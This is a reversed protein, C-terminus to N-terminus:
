RSTELAKRILDADLDHWAGTRDILLYRQETLDRILAGELDGVKVTGIPRLDDRLMKPAFKRWGDGKAM